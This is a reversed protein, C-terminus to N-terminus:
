TSEPFLKNLLEGDLETRSEFAPSDLYRLLSHLLQRAEPKDQNGQDDVLHPFKKDTKVVTDLTGPIDTRWLWGLGNAAETLFTIKFPSKKGATFKFASRVSEKGVQRRYVEVDGVEMISYSSNAYGANFEYVGATEMRIFGRVVATGGGPFPTPKVGGFAPLEKTEIPTMKDYDAAPSYEGPYISVVPDLFQKSWRSSGGSIQGIGVMNSQGSLIYVKVPKDTAPPKTDPDPLQAPIVKATVSQVILVLAVVALNLLTETRTRTTM